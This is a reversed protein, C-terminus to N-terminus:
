HSKCELAHGYLQKTHRHRDPEGFRDSFWPLVHNLSPHCQGLVRKHIMGLIGINRRLTPPALNYTLFAHEATVGLKHLFRDQVNDLKDLLSLSAHFIGRNDKKVIEWIHTKFQAILARESYYARTRLLATVKPKIRSLIEDIAKDMTLKVDTLCGLVKIPEGSGMTPHIILLHEKKADFLVRNARGWRHFNKRCKALTQMVEEHSARKDFEHFVNLDDAFIAEDGGQSKAPMAVDGFFVNWLTPGLVTGQFVSNSISFLDSSSGEVLVQGERTSLYADLFNLYKTGVNAANLKALLYEKCVRDFAGSIDSFYAGIKHGTCISLTWKMMLATVLDRAGLGTQFAWQNEGFYGGRLHLILRKGIVKEAIKSLIPTM